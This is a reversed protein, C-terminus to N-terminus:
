GRLAVVEAGGGPPQIRVEGETGEGGLVSVEVDLFRRAVEAATLLHGTVSAVTYRTAPVLGPLAVRGSAALAAPLVLQEGLFRDLAAGGRLFGDFARVATEAVKDPPDGPAGVAGSGGRTRDFQAVVMVQCGAAGRSPVPLRTAEAAVGADRLRRLTSAALREAVDFGMGGVVAVVEADRLMGRHRLDLPPMPHAPRIDATMSGAGDAAFAAEQLGLEVGFGLRAVAPAWVLALDHFTPAGRLHTAGRLTLRSPGGALALPWSLTQLLLPASGAGALDITREGAEVKERPRFELRTSGPEAGTLDAGCLGAVARVLSVDRPLLGPEPAGARIRHIGFARGTIASLPLATRLAQGGGEGLSGDIVIPLPQGM